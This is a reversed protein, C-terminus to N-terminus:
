LPFWIIRSISPVLFLRTKVITSVVSAKALVPRFIGGRQTVPSVVFWSRPRITLFKLTMLLFPHEKQAFCDFLHSLFLSLVTDLSVLLPYDWIKWQDISVFWLCIPEILWLLRICVPTEFSAEKRPFWLFEQWHCFDRYKLKSLLFNAWCHYFRYRKCVTVLTKVTSRKLELFIPDIGLPSLDSVGWGTDWFM